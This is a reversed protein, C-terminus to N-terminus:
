SLGAVEVKGNLNENVKGLAFSRVPGTSAITPAFLVLLLLLLVVVGVAKLLLPVRRKKRKAAAPRANGAPPPQVPPMAGAPGILPDTPQQRSDDPAPAGAFTPDDPQQSM